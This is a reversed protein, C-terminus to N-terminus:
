FIKSGKSYQQLLAFVFQEPINLEQSIQPITKKNKALKVVVSVLNESVEIMHKDPDYFRVVRTGWDMKMPENVFEIGHEWSNLKEMFEDFEDEEFFFEMDNGGFSFFEDDKGVMQKFSDYTQLALGCDLTVNEGYDMNPDITCGMIETYFKKSLEMDKVIVLQNKYRM